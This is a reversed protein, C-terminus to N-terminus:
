IKANVETNQFYLFLDVKGAEASVGDIDIVVPNVDPDSITYIIGADDLMKKFYRQWGQHFKSDIRFIVKDMSMEETDTANGRQLRIQVEGGGGVSGGAGTGGITIQHIHVYTNEGDVIIYMIPDSIIEAFDQYSYKQFVAGNEYSIVQDGKSYEIYGTGNEVSAPYIYFSGGEMKIKTVRGQGTTAPAQVVEKIDGQLVTFASRMNQMHAREKAIEIRPMGTAYILGITSTVIFLILVMAIVPSVADKSSLFRKPNKEGTKRKELKISRM